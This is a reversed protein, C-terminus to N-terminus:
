SPARVHVVVSDAVHVLFPAHDSARRLADSVRVVVRSRPPLLDLDTLQPNITLFGDPSITM